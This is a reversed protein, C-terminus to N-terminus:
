KQNPTLLHVLNIMPDTDSGIPHNCTLDCEEETDFANGNGGCGGYNFQKCQSSELDYSWKPFLALCATLGNGNKAFKEYCKKPKTVNISQPDCTIQCEAKSDFNNGNESWGSWQFSECSNSEPNFYYKEVRASEVGDSETLNSNIGQDM